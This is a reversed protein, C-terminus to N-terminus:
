TIFNISILLMPLPFTKCPAFYPSLVPWHKLLRYSLQTHLIPGWFFSNSIISVSITFSILIAQYSLASHSSILFLTWTLTRLNVLIWPTLLGLLSIVFPLWVPLLLILPRLLLILPCLTTFGPSRPPQLHFSFHAALCQQPLHVDHSPFIGVPNPSLSAM